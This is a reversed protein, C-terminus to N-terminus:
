ATGLALVREALALAGPDDLRRRVCGVIWAPSPLAIGENKLTEFWCTEAWKEISGCAYGIRGCVIQEVARAEMEDAIGYARAEPKKAHINDRTWRKRVGWRLAHAAEHAADRPDEADSGRSRVIRVLDPGTM